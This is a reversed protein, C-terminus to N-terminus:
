RGKMFCIWHTNLNKGSRNGFLPKEPTLELIEKVPVDVESWKFILVGDKQLVRFCESFGKKLMEKWDGKLLGYKLTMLSDESSHTLHPPDFVALKFSGDAFPLATFDCITDPKIEIYRQPYFEFKEIERIDCFEVSPNDKDFWFMKSGCCVDIIPKQVNDTQKEYLTDVTPMSNIIDRISEDCDFVGSIERDDIPMYSASLENILADADICRM